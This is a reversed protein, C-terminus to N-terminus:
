VISMMSRTAQFQSLKGIYRVRVEQLEEQQILLQQQLLDAMEEYKEACEEIKELRLELQAPDTQSTDELAKVRRKLRLIDIDKTGREEASKREFQTTQSM